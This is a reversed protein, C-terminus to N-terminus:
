ILTRALVFAFIGAISCFLQLQRNLVKARSCNVFHNIKPKALGTGWFVYGTYECLDAAFSPLPYLVNFATGAGWAIGVVFISAFLMVGYSKWQKTTHNESGLVTINM